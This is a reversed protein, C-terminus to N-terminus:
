RRWAGLGDRNLYDIVLGTARGGDMVFRVSSRSGEPENEGSPPAMAFSDGTWHTLQATKHKPGIALQLGGDKVVIDVPGYYSNNYTGAYDALPRAPTPKAPPKANALDGVPAFMPQMLAHYGAYWDRTTQGYQAIDMFESVIAEAAGVPAANTLVVIGLKASPLIQFSTGAGLLFAGSHGMSTRGNAHVGVNFGYGYFSGREDPSSPAHPFSQAALAPTLKDADALQKGNHAGNALLLKMWEAIDRVNSSVGGAPSQADPDRDYLPRFVGNQLAHLHARNAHAIYDAHRASTSTMGLPAFLTRAALSEWAEGSAAAVAEAATTTGFNAYNYSARFPDLPWQDLRSLIEKRTFGLDELDDGAAHPLGSRHAFFDGITAHASVWPDSLRFWPLHKQVPDDWNIVGKTAAIAAVTASMPKSMSAIQFVTDPTVAASEGLRLVGFGGMYVTKGDHVVAIAVGPAKSRAMIAQAIAPLQKLAKALGGQNLAIVDLGPSRGVDVAPSGSATQSPTQASAPAVSLFMGAGLSTMALLRVFRCAIMETEPTPRM